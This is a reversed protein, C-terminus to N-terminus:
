NNTSSYFLYKNWQRPMVIKYDLNIIKLIILGGSDKDGFVILYIVKVEYKKRELFFDFIWYYRTMEWLDPSGARKQRKQTATTENDIKIGTLSGFGLKEKSEEM